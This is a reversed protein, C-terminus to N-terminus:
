NKLYNKYIIWCLVYIWLLNVIYCWYTGFTDHLKYSYLSYLYSFLGIFIIFWDKTLFCSFFLFFTWFIFFYSKLKYLNVPELWNWQLFGKKNISTKFNINKYNFLLYIFTIFLYSYILNNKLLINNEIMNIASLPELLIVLFGMKSYFENKKKDKINKWLFYEVLQMSSFVM